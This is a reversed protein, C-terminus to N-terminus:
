GALTLRRQSIRTLNSKVIDTSRRRQKRQSADLRFAAMSERTWSFDLTLAESVMGKEKIFERVETDAFITESMAIQQEEALAQLKAAMNVTNGFYDINSTLRVALCKGMHLSVRLRLNTEPNGPAFYEQLQVSAKLAALPTDYAAMVADGITKVVAGQTEEIIAFAKQFHRRVAQFAQADGQEAYMKSSGVIDTFLITQMGIDLSLDAPLAAKPFLSRFAPHKFLDGPRLAYADEMDEAIILTRHKDLPKNVHLLFNEAATFSCGSQETDSVLVNDGGEAVVDLLAYHKQGRCYLRYRGAALQPQFVFHAGARLEEQMHMHTKQAPEAACYLQKKIERIAPHVHFTVELANEGTTEFDIDCVDCSGSKPIDGLNELEQRVGRCHPCVVDWSMTLLGIKTAHLAIKLLEKESVWWRRALQRIRIRDLDQEPSHQIHTLFSRLTKSPGITARLEQLLQKSRKNMTNKPHQVDNHWFSDANDDELHQTLTSLVAEYGAYIKRMMMPLILRGLIHRPQWAFCVNLRFSDPTIEDIIYHAHVAKVFGKNYIREAKLWREKQWQWPKESWKLLGLPTKLEGFLQGDIENYEIADLGMKKNMTSTDILYPWFREIPQHITKQWDYALLHEPAKPYRQLQAQDPASLMIQSKEKPKM